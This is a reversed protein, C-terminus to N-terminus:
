WILMEYWTIPGTDPFVFHTILYVISTAMYVAATLCLPLVARKIRRSYFVVVLYEVSTVFRSVFLVLAFAKYYRQDDVKADMDFVPGAFVFATMVGFHVLKCIRNYVTDM